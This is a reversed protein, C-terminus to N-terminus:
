FADAGQSKLAALKAELSAIREKRKEPSMTRRKSEYQTLMSAFTDANAGDMGVISAGVIRVGKGIVPLLTRSENACRRLWGTINKAGRLQYVVGDVLVRLVPPKYAPRKTKGDTTSKAAKTGKAM